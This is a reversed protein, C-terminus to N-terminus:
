RGKFKAKVPGIKIVALAEYETNSTRTVSQSGPICSALIDPRPTGGSLTLHLLYLINGQFDM